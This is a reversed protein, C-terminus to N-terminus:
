KGTRLTVALNVANSPNATEGAPPPAILTFGEDSLTFEFSKGTIPDVPVPVATIDALKAPLKGTAAFHLRIAELTRLVAVKRANRATAFYLKDGAPLLLSFLTFVPDNAQMKVLRQRREEAVKLAPQALYYPQGFWKWQEDRLEQYRELSNLFVAQAPPMADVDKAARGRAVLETKATSLHLAIYGAVGLKRLTVEIEPKPQDPDRPTGLARLFLDDSIRAAKEPSLRDRELERIGPFITETFLSEGDFAPKPDVLPHPMSTLAWYLNPSGPRTIWEEIRELM